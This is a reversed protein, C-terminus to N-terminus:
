RGVIWRREPKATDIPIKTLFWPQEGSDRQIYGITVELPLPNSRSKGEREAQM